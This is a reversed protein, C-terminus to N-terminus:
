FVFFIPLISGLMSQSQSPFFRADFIARQARRRRRWQHGHGHITNRLLAFEQCSARLQSVMWKWGISLPLTFIKFTFFFQTVDILIDGPEMHAALLAITDDVAQGAQVLIIVKRPLSLSETLLTDAFNFWFVTNWFTRIFERPNKFGVLPLNGEERARAVTADVKEPSRNCVSVVFGHQAMNLAFNQGMVALGYLGVDSLDRSKSESM